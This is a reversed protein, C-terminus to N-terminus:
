EKRMFGHLQLDRRARAIETDIYYSSPITTTNPPAGLHLSTIRALDSPSTIRSNMSHAFLSNAKKSEPCNYAHRFALVIAQSCFLKRPEDANRGRVDSTLSKQLISPMMKLALDTFNYKCKNYVQLDNWELLRTFESDALLHLHWAFLQPTETYHLPLDESRLMDGGLFIAYTEDTKPIFMECHTYEGAGYRQLVRDTWFMPKRYVVIVPNCNRGALSLLMAAPLKTEYLDKMPALPIEPTYDHMCNTNCLFPMEIQPNLVSRSMIIDIAPKYCIPM